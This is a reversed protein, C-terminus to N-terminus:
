STIHCLQFFIHGCAPFNKNPKPFSIFIIQRYFFGCLGRGEDGFSGGKICAGGRAGEELNQPTNHPNQLCPSM